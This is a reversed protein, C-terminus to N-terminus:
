LQWTMNTMRRLDFLDFDDSLKSEDDSAMSEDDKKDAERDPRDTAEHDNKQDSAKSSNGSSDSNKGKQESTNHAKSSFNVYDNEALACRHTLHLSDAMTRYHLWETASSRSEQRLRTCHLPM